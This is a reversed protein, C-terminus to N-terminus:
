NTKKAHTAFNNTGARLIDDVYCGSLEKLINEDIWTFLAPESGLSTMGLEKQHHDEFTKHWLDGSECLDYFPKLLKLCHKPQLEFEPVAKKIYIDRSINSESQIYAHKVDSSWVRFRKFQPLALLLRISSPQLVQAPHAMFDKLKDRHSGIVFRAKYNRKNHLTSKISLFLRGPPVNADAPIEEKM